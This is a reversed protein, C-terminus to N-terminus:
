QWEPDCGADCTCEQFEPWDRHILMDNWNECFHWGAAIEEQTLTAGFKVELFNYREPTM